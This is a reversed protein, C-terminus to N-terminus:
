AISVDDKINVDCGFDVLHQAIILEQEMIAHHLATRGDQFSFCIYVDIDRGTWILIMVGYYPWIPTMRINVVNDDLVAFLM